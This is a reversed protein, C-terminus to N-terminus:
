ATMKDSAKSVFVKGDIKEAEETNKEFLQCDIKSKKGAFVGCFRLINNKGVFYIESPATEGHRKIHVAMKQKFFNKPLRKVLSNMYRICIDEMLYQKNDPLVQEHDYQFM